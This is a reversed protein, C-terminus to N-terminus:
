SPIDYQNFIEIPLRVRDTLFSDVIRGGLASGGMGCIVVNQALSCAKPADLKKIEEWAQEMQDPLMRISALMKGTDFKELETQSDLNIM